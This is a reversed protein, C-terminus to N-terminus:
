LVDAGRAEEESYMKMTHPCRLKSNLDERARKCFHESLDAGRLAAAPLSAGRAGGVAPVADRARSGSWPLGLCARSM